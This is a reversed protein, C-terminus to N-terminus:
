RVTCARLHVDLIEDEVTRLEGHSKAVVEEPGGDIRLSPANELFALLDKLNPFVMTKPIWSAGLSRVRGLDGEKWDMNTNLQECLVFEGINSRFLLAGCKLGFPEDQHQGSSVPPGSLGCSSLIACLLVELRSYM